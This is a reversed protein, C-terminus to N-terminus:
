KYGTHALCENALDSCVQCLAHQSHWVFITIFEFDPQPSFNRMETLVRSRPTQPFNVSDLQGSTMSLSHPLIDAVGAGGNVGYNECLADVLDDNFDVEAIQGFGVKPSIM